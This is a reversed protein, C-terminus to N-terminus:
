GGLGQITRPYMLAFAEVLHPLKEQLVVEGIFQNATEAVTGGRFWHTPDIGVDRSLVKLTDHDPIVVLAELMQEITNEGLTRERVRRELLQLQSESTPDSRLLDLPSHFESDWMPNVMDGPLLYRGYRNNARKYEDFFQEIVFRYDRDGSDGTAYVFDFLEKAGDRYEMISFPHVQVPWSGDDVVRVKDPDDLVLYGRTLGRTSKFHQDWEDAMPRWVAQGHLVAGEHPFLRMWVEPAILVPVGASANLSTTLTCLRHGSTSPRLRFTGIGGMVKQSKGWPVYTVNKRRASESEIAPPGLRRLVKSENRWFLGPVRPVWETLVAAEISVLQHYSATAIYHWFNKDDNFCSYERGLNGFEPERNSELPSDARSFNQSAEIVRAGFYAERLSMKVEKTPLLEVMKIYCNVEASKVSKSQKAEVGTSPWKSCKGNFAELEQVVM